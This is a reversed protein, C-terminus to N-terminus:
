PVLSLVASGRTVEQSPSASVELFEYARADLVHARDPACMAWAVLHGDKDFIEVARAGPPPPPPNNPDSEVVLGRAADPQPSLQSSQSYQSRQSSVPSM